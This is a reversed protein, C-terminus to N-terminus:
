KKYWSPIKKLKDCNYFMEGMNEVNSVDWNELDCDLKNCYQFMWHMNQVNHVDWKSIDSNFNHCGYFMYRMNIVHSVDWESIDINHPDFGFFLESMDTIHSVDIDNLDANKNEKLREELINELEYRDKPKISHTKSKGTIVLREQIKNNLLKM